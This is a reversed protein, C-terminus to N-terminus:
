AAVRGAAIEQDDRLLQRRQEGGAQREVAAEAREDLQGVLRRQLRHHRVHQLGHAAALREGVREGLVAEERRQVHVHHTGALDAAEEVDHQLAEDLVELAGLLQAVLRAGREGVRDDQGPGHADRDHDEEDVHQRLERRQEAVHSLVRGSDARM